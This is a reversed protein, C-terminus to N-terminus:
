EGRHNVFDLRPVGLIAANPYNEALKQAAEEDSLAWFEVTTTIRDGNNTVIRVARYSRVEVSIEPTPRHDFVGTCELTFTDVAADGRPTLVWNGVHENKTNLVAGSDTTGLGCLHFFVALKQLTRPIEENLDAFKSTDIKINLM